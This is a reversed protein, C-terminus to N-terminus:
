SNLLLKKFKPDCIEFLIVEDSGDSSPDIREYQSIKIWGLRIMALLDHLICIEEDDILQNANPNRRKVWEFVEPHTDNTIKKFEDDFPIVFTNKM